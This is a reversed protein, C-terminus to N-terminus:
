TKSFTFFIIQGACIIGGNVSEFFQGHIYRSESQQSPSIEGVRGELGVSVYNKLLANHMNLECFRMLGKGLALIIVM